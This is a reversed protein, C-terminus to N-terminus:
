VLDFRSRASEVCPWSRNDAVKKVCKGDILEAWSETKLPIIWSQPHLVYIGGKKALSISNKRRKACVILVSFPTLAPAQALPLLVFLCWEYATHVSHFLSFPCAWKGPVGPGSSANIKWKFHLHCEKFSILQRCCFGLSCNSICWNINSIASINSISRSSINGSHCSSRNATAKAAILIQRQSIRQWTPICRLAGTEQIAPQLNSTAPQWQHQCLFHM